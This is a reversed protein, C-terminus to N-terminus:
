HVVVDCTKCIYKVIIYYIFPCIIILELLYSHLSFNLNHILLDLLSIIGQFISFFIMIIINAQFYNTVKFYNFIFRVFIGVIIIAFLHSGIYWHGFIDALLSILVIVRYSCINVFLLVVLVIGLCDVYFITTSNIILQAM